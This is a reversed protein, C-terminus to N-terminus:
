FYVYGAAVYINGFKFTILRDTKFFLMSKVFRIYMNCTNHANHRQSQCFHDVHDFLCWAQLESHFWCFGTFIIMTKAGDSIQNIATVKGPRKRRNM